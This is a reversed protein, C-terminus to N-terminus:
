GGNLGIWVIESIEANAGSWKTKNGLKEKTAWHM